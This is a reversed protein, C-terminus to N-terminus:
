TFIQNWFRRALSLFCTFFRSSISWLSFSSTWGCPRWGCDMEDAPACCIEMLWMFWCISVLGFMRPRSYLRIFLCVCVCVCVWVCVCLYGCFNIILLSIMKKINFHFLRYSITWEGWKKKKKGIKMKWCNLKLSFNHQFCDHHYCYYYDIGWNLLFYNEVIAAFFRISDHFFISFSKESLEHRWLEGGGGGGGGRGGGGGESGGGSGWCTLM